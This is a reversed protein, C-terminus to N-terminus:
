WVLWVPFFSTSKLQKHCVLLLFRNVTAFVHIISYCFYMLIKEHSKGYVSNGCRLYLCLKLLNRIIWHKSSKRWACMRQLDHLKFFTHLMKIRSKQLCLKRPMLWLETRGEKSKCVTELNCQLVWWRYGTGICILFHLNTQPAPHIRWLSHSQAVKASTYPLNKGQGEHLIQSFTEVNIVCKIRWMNQPWRIAESWLYLFKQM